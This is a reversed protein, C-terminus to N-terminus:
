WFSRAWSRFEEVMWLIPGLALLGLFGIAFIAVAENEAPLRTDYAVLYAATEGTNVHLRTQGTACGKGPAMQLVQQVDTTQAQQGDAATSATWSELAATPVCFTAQPSISM